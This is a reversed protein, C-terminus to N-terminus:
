GNCDSTVMTKKDCNAASYAALRGGAILECWRNPEQKFTRGCAQFLLERGLSVAREGFGADSASRWNRSAAFMFFSLRFMGGIKCCTSKDTLTVDQRRPTGSIEAPSEEFM